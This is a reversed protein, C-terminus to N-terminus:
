EIHRSSSRGAKGKELALNNRCLNLRNGDLYRVRRGTPAEVILRAVTMLVGGAMCRVHDYGGGNSNLFWPGCLGAGQLRQYDRHDLVAPEHHNSLAVAVIPQIARDSLDTHRNQDTM